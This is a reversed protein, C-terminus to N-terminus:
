ASSSYATHKALSLGSYSEKLAASSSSRASPVTCLMMSLYIAAQNFGSIAGSGKPEPAKEHAAGIRRIEADQTVAKRLVKAFVYLFHFIDVLLQKCLTTSSALM